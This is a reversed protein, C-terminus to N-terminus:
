KSIAKIKNHELYNLYFVYGSLYWFIPAYFYVRLFMNYDFLSIIFLAGIIGVLAHSELDLKTKLLKICENAISLLLLMCIILGIFGTYYYLSIFINHPDENTNAVVISDEGYKKIANDKFTNLGKGIIPSDSVMEIAAEYLYIRNSSLINLIAKIDMQKKNINNIADATGRGKASFSNIVAYSPLILVSLLSIILIIKKHSSKKYFYVMLVGTFFLLSILSSRTDMLLLNVLNALIYIIILPKKSQKFLLTCAGLAILISQSKSSPSVGIGFAGFLRGDVIFLPYNFFSTKFLIELVIFVINLLSSISIIHMLLSMITTLEKNLEDKSTNINNYFLLYFMIIDFSLTIIPFRNTNIYSSLFAVVIFASSLIIEKLYLKNKTSIQLQFYYIFLIFSLFTFLLIIFSNDLFHFNLQFMHFKIILFYMIFSIRLYSKLKSTILKDM